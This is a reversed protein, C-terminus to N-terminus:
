GAASPTPGMCLIGCCSVRSWIILMLKVLMAAWRSRDPAGLPAGSAPSGHGEYIWSAGLLRWDISGSPRISGGAKKIGVDDAPM